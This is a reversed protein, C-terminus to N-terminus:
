NGDIAQVELQPKAEKCLSRLDDLKDFIIALSIVVTIGIIILRANQKAIAMWSQQPGAEGSRMREIFSQNPCAKCKEAVRKDIQEDLEQQSWLNRMTAALLLGTTGHYRNMTDTGINVGDVLLQATKRYEALLANNIADDDM